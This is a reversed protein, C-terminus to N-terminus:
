DKEDFEEIWNKKASDNIRNIYKRTLPGNLYMRREYQRELIIDTELLKLM